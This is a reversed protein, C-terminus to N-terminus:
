AATSHNWPKVDTADTSLLYVPSTSCKPSDSSCPGGSEKGVRDTKTRSVGLEQQFRPEDDVAAGYLVGFHRGYAAKRWTYAARTWACPGKGKQMRGAPRPTVPPDEVSDGAEMEAGDAIGGDASFYARHSTEGNAEAWKRASTILLHPHLIAFPQKIDLTFPYAESADVLRLNGIVSENLDVVVVSM